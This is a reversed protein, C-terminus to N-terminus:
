RLQNTLMVLRRKGVSTPEGFMGCIHPDTIQRRVILPTSIPLAQHLGAHIEQETVSTTLTLKTEDSIPAKDCAAILSEQLIYKDEEWGDDHPRLIYASPVANTDLRYWRAALEREPASLYLVLLEFDHQPITEALLRTGYRDGLLAVFNFFPSAKQCRAIEEMCVRVVYQDTSAEESIGWRLDIPLFRAKKELCYRHLSPFVREQLANREAQFDAFTSSFFVRFLPALHAM